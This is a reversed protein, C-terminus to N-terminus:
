RKSMFHLRTGRPLVLKGVLTNIMVEGTMSITELRYDSGEVFRGDVCNQSFHIVSGLQAIAEYVKSTGEPANPSDKYFIGGRSVGYHSLDGELEKLADLLLPQHAPM